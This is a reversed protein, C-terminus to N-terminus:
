DQRILGIQPSIRMFRALNALNAGQKIKPNLINEPDFLTKIRHYLDLTKAPTVQNVMLAQVQGEASGGCLNGGSDAVLKSYQQLFRLVQKRDAVQSLDFSPRVSYLNTMFSGFIPLEQDFIRELTSMSDIFSCFETEPIYSRDALIVREVVTSDNRYVELSKKIQAVIKAIEPQDIIALSRDFNLNKLKKLNSLNKFYHDDFETLVLYKSKLLHEAKEVLQPLEVSSIIRQDYFDIRLPQLKKLETMFELTDKLNTFGLLAQKTPRSVPVVKLILETIVGLAGQAGFFLPALDFEHSSPQVETIMHFGTRVHNNKKIDSIQEHSENIIKEVSQYLKGVFNEQKKAIKLGYPNLSQSQFVEGNSLVAELRDVYYYISGYKKAIKDTYFNSVLGGITERPDAEIPLRLGFLALASNLQGLTVGAQVRVLRARDDIEQIQDLKETSIVMGETLDAGSQDLGSGRVAVPLQYGKKALENAFRLLYQIDEVNQPLCLIKPMIELISADRSYAALVEPKNTVLGSIKANLFNTIKDM